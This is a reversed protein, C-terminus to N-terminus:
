MSRRVFHLVLLVLNVTCGIAGGLGMVLLFFQVLSLSIYAQRIRERGTPPTQSM